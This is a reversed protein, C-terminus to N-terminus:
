ATINSVSARSGRWAAYDAYHLQVCAHSEHTCLLNYTPSAATATRASEPNDAERFDTRASIPAPAQARRAKRLLGRPQAAACM